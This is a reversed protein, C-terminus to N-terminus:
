RLPCVIKSIRGVSNNSIVTECIVLLAVFARSSMSWLLCRTGIYRYSYPELVMHGVGNIAQLLTGAIKLERCAGGERGVWYKGVSLVMNAGPRFQTGPATKRILAARRSVSWLLCRTDIYRYGYPDLVMHGVNKIAHLLPCAVKLECVFAGGEDWSLVMNSNNTVPRFHTGTVTKPLLAARRSVPWLLCRTGIYRYCYPIFLVNM